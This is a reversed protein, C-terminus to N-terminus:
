RGGGLGFFDLTEEFEAEEGATFSPMLEGLGPEQAELDARTTREVAETQGFQGLAFGAFTEGVWGVALSDGAEAGSGRPKGRSRSEREPEPRGFGFVESRTEAEMELELELESEREREREREFETEREMEREREQEAETETEARQEQELELGQVARPEQAAAQRGELAAAPGYGVRPAVWQLYDPETDLIERRRVREREAETETEVSPRRAERSREAEAETEAETALGRGPEYGFREDLESEIRQAEELREEAERVPDGPEPGERETVPRTEPTPRGGSARVETGLESMMQDFIEAERAEQAIEDLDKEAEYRSERAAREHELREPSVAREAGRREAEARLELMRAEAEGADVETTADLIEGTPSGLPESAAGPARAAPAEGAEARGGSRGPFLQEAAAAEAGYMRVGAPRDEVSPVDMGPETRLGTDGFEAPAGGAYETGSGGPVEATAGGPRFRDALEARRPRPGVEALELEGAALGRAGRAAREAAGGAARAAAIAGEESMVVPEGHPFLGRRAAGAASSARSLGARGAAASAGGLARSGALGILEEGPQMAYRAGASATPGAARAAKFAAGTGVLQAATYVPREAVQDAVEEATEVAFGGAAAASEGASHTGAYYSAEFGTEGVSQVTSPGRAVMPVFSGVGAYAEQATYEALTEDAVENEPARRVDEAAREVDETERRMAEGGAVAVNPSSVQSSQSLLDVTDGALDSAPELGEERLWDAGADFTGWAASEADSQPGIVAQTVRNSELWHADELHERRERRARREDLKERGSETLEARAWPAAEVGRLAEGLAPSVMGAYGGARRALSAQEETVRGSEVTFDRGQEVELEEATRRATREAVHEETPQVVLGGRAERAELEGAPVGTREATREVARERVFSETLSLGVGGGETERVTYDYGRELDVPDVRVGGPGQESPDQSVSLGAEAASEARSVARHREETRIRRRVAAGPEAVLGDDTERVEIESPDAEVGYRETVNAAARDRLEAEQQLELLAGGRESFAVPVTETGTPTSLEAVYAGPGVRRVRSGGGTDPHHPEAHGGYSRMAIGLADRERERRVGVPVERGLDLEGEQAAESVDERIEGSEITPRGEDPSSRPRDRAGIAPPSPGLDDTGAPAEGAGGGDGTADPASGPDASGEVPTLVNQDSGSPPAEPEPSGSGEAPTLDKSSSTNEGTESSPGSRPRDRPGISPPGPPGDGEDPSISVGGGRDDPASEGADDPEPEEGGTADEEPASRPRARPGIDPPAPATQDRQLDATDQRIQNTDIDTPAPDATEPAIEAALRDGWDPM